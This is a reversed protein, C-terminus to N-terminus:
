TESQAQRSEKLEALIVDGVLAAKGGAAYFYEYLALTKRVGRALAQSSLTAGAYNLIDRYIRVKDRHTKGRFQKLFRPDRVEAGRSERFVLLIVDKVKGSADLGVTFTIPETKGIEDLTLAYATTRDGERAVQFRYSPKPSVSAPLSQSLRVRLSRM